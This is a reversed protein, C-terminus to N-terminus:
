GVTYFLAHRTHHFSLVENNNYHKAVKDNYLYSYHKSQMTGVIHLWIANFM